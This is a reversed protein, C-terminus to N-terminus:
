PGPGFGGGLGRGPGGGMGERYSQMQEKTLISGLREEMVERMSFDEGTQRSIMMEQATYHVADYVLDQQEPQLQVSQNLRVLQTTAMLEARNYIEEQSDQLYQDFQEPTLVGAIADDLNFPEVEEGSRRARFYDFQRRYVAELETRQEDSLGYTAALEDVRRSMREEMRRVFGPRPEQEAEAEPETEATFDPEGPSLRVSDLERRLRGIEADQERLRALLATNDPPAKDVDALAADGIRVPEPDSKLFLIGLGVLLGLIFAVALSLRWKM